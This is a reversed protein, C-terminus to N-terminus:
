REVEPDKYVPGDYEIGVQRLTDAMKEHIAPPRLGHARIDELAKAYNLLADAHAHRARQIRGVDRALDSFLLEMAALRVSESVKGLEDHLEWVAIDSKWDGQLRPRRDSTAAPSQGIVWQRVLEPHVSQNEIMIRDDEGLPLWLFAPPLSLAWAIAIAEDLSVGRAGTEIKAIQARDVQWGLLSLEEALREQTWGRRDRYRKTRRAFVQSPRETM